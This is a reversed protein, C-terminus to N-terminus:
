NLTSLGRALDNSTAPESKAGHRFYVTGKSFATKQKDDAVAYTGPREFVLPAVTKADITVAAVKKGSKTGEHIDFGDFQEGVYKSLKNTVDAPDMALFKAPDWGSPKGVSNLGIVLVGGGSNAMAVIDKILECWAGAEETEFVEKFEVRKTEKSATLAEAIRDSDVVSKRNLRRREQLVSESLRDMDGTTPSHTIRMIFCTVM